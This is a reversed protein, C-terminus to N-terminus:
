EAKKLKKRSKNKIIKSTNEVGTVLKSAIKFINKTVTKKPHGQVFPIGEAISAEVIQPQDAIFGYIGLGSLEEVKKSPITSKKKIRTHILRIKDTLQMNELTEKYLKTNRLSPLSGDTMLIIDDAEQLGQLHVESIAASVDILIVQYVKKLEQVLLQIDEGSVVEFFEPRSPAPMVSVGSDHKTLYDDIDLEERNDGENIWEYITRKPRLNMYMAVDGFQIDADIVAVRQGQKALVVALNVTFSTRGAGGKTSTVAIVQQNLTTLPLSTVEEQQLRHYMYKEAQHVVDRIDEKGSSFRLINHAGAQMAKRANEMNDPIMLVIYIHPYKISLEECLQYANYVTHAKIILTVNSGKKLIDFLRDLYVIRKLDYGKKQLTEELLDVKSNNDSYFLWQFDM